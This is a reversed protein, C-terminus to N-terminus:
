LYLLARLLGRCGPSQEGSPAGLLNGGLPGPLGQSQAPLCCLSVRHVLHTPRTGLAAPHQARRPLSVRSHRRSYHTSCGM